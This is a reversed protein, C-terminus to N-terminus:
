MQQFVKITPLISGSSREKEINATLYSWHQHYKINCSLKIAVKIWDIKFIAKLHTSCKKVPHIEQYNANITPKNLYVDFFDIRWYDLLSEIFGYWKSWFIGSDSGFGNMDDFVTSFCIERLGTMSSFLYCCNNWHLSPFNQCFLAKHVSLYGCVILELLFLIM